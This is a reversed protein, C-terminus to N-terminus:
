NFTSLPLLCFLSMCVHVRTRACVCKDGEHVGSVCVCKDGEHVGSVCVCM